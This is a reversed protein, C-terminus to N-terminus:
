RYQQVLVRGTPFLKIWDVGTNSTNVCRLVRKKSLVCWSRLSRIQRSWGASHSGLYHGAGGGSLAPWRHAKTSPTEPSDVDAYGNGHSSMDRAATFGARLDSTVNQIAILTSAERSMGPKPTNFM